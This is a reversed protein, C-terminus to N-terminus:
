IEKLWNVDGFKGQYTSAIINRDAVVHRLKMVNLAWVEANRSNLVTTNIALSSDSVGGNSYSIIKLGRSGAEINVVGFTESYSTNVLIGSTDLIKRVELRNKQGVLFVRDELRLDSIMQAIDNFLPGQGVITLTYEEPLFKMIEIQLKQDKNSDLSGVSVLRHPDYNSSPEGLFEIPVINSVVPAYFNYQAKIETQFNSSVCCVCRPCNNSIISKYIASHVTSKNKTIKNANHEIIIVKTHHIKRLVLSCFGAWFFNKCLILDYKKSHKKLSIFFRITAIFQLIGSTVTWNPFLSIKRANKLLTRKSISKRMLRLFFIKQFSVVDCEVGQKKLLGSWDRAFISLGPDLEPYNPESSIILIKKLM